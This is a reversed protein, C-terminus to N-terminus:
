RLITSILHLIGEVILGGGANVSLDCIYSLLSRRKVETNPKNGLGELEAVTNRLKDANEEGYEDNLSSDYKKIKTILESIKSDDMFPSISQHQMSNNTGQQIQVDSVPGYFNNINTYSESNDEFLKKEDFYSIGNALLQIIYPYNDAWRISIMDAEKLEKFLSRLIADETLPLSEFRDKWYQSDCIGNENRHELIEKLLEEAKKTIKKMNIAREYTGRHQAM